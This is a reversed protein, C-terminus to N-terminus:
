TVGGGVAEARRRTAGYAPETGGHAYATLVMRLAAVGYARVPCRVARAYASVVCVEDGGYDRLLDEYGRIM